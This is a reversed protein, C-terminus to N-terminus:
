KRNGTNKSNKKMINKAVHDIYVESVWSGSFSDMSNALRFLENLLGFPSPLGSKRFGFLGNNLENERARNLQATPPSVIV